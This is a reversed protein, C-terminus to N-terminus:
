CRCKARRRSKHKRARRSHRRSHRRSRRRSHRKGGCGGRRKHHKRAHSRRRRSKGRKGGCSKGRKRSRSRHKRSKSRHKRSKSRHKRSKGCRKKSSRKKSRKRKKCLGGGGRRRAEETEFNETKVATLQTLPPPVKFMFRGRRTRLIGYEAGRKLSTYICKVMRDNVKHNASIYNIIEKPTFGREAKLLRIAEVVLKAAKVPKKEGM